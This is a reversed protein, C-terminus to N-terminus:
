ASRCCCTSPPGRSTWGSTASRARGRATAAGRSAARWRWRSRRHGGRRLHLQALRPRGDPEPLEDDGRRRLGALQHQDHLQGRHQLLLAAEVAGLKQPNFPLVHQLRQIAYTVLMTFVSFALLAVSYAQWSQERGDVGAVRYMLRELWGLPRRLFHDHGELVRHMFAGLPITVAVIAAFFFLIQIWGNATM